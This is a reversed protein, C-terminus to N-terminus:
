KVLSFYEIDYLLEVSLFRLALVQEIVTFVLHHHTSVCFYTGGWRSDVSSCQVATLGSWMVFHLAAYESDSRLVDHDSLYEKEPACLRDPHAWPASNRNSCQEFVNRHLWCM